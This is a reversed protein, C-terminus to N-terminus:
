DITSDTDAMGIEPHDIVSSKRVWGAHGDVFASNIGGSHPFTFRGWKATPSYSHVSGGEAFSQSCQKEVINGNNYRQLGDTFLLKKSPQKIRTTQNCLVAKGDKDPGGAFSPMLDANASYNNNKHFPDAVNGNASYENDPISQQGQCFFIAKDSGPEPLYDANWLFVTWGVAAAMKVNLKKLYVGYMAWGHLQDRNDSAYASEGMGIQRINAPCSTSRARERAQQLAPMLIAALIAIIAIVVLLEILTFNRSRDSQPRLPHEKQM